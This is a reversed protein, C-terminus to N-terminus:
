KGSEFEKLLEDNDMKVSFEYNDMEKKDIFKLFAEKKDAPWSRFMTFTKCMHSKDCCSDRFDDGNNLEPHLPCGVKGDEFSTLNMCIGSSRIVKPDYRDRFLDLDEIDELEKTNKWIDKLVKEKGEFDHGCCGFCSFKGYQCLNIKM